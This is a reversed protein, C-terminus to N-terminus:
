DISIWQNNKDKIYFAIISQGAHNCVVEIPNGTKFYLQTYYEDIKLNLWIYYNHLMLSSHFLSMWQEFTFNQIRYYEDGEKFNTFSILRGLIYYNSHAIANRIQQIYGSKAHKKFVASHKGIDTKIIKRILNPRTKEDSSFDKLVFDWEYDHGNIIKSFQYWTKLFLDNEWIKLYILTELNFSFEDKETKLFIEDKEGKNLYEM